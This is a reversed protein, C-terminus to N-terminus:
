FYICINAFNYTLLTKWYSTFLVRCKSIFFIDVKADCFEGLSFIRSLYRTFRITFARKRLAIVDVFLVRRCQAIPKQSENSRCRLFWYRSKRCITAFLICHSLIREFVCLKKFIRRVNVYIKYTFITVM